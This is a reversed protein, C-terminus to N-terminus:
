HPEEYLDCLFFIQIITLIASADGVYVWRPSILQNPALGLGRWCLARRDASPPAERALIDGRQLSAGLAFLADFADRCWTASGVAEGGAFASVAAIHFRVVLALM